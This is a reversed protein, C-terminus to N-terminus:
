NIYYIDCSTLQQLFNINKLGLADKIIPIIKDANQVDNIFIIVGKSIDKKNVIDQINQKTYDINKAVYSEDILTFLLIDDLFRSKETDMFYITPLNLESQLKQVIQKRNTYLLEPEWKFVFPTIIMVAFLICMIINVINEKTITQLLKYLYYIVIIFILSCVPVIYRLVNWPSTITAITFFIVSPIIIIKIIDKTEKSIKFIPKKRIKNYILIIVIAAIIIYLFNSFGYYNLNHVQPFISKVIEWVNEVKTMVSQGRYGFFIHNISYPFIILSTIGALLMTLTYYIAWKIRKEKIYKFMFVLYISGLFFLYYYHTLIGALATIGIGILLKVNEKELLKIHLLTTILVILTSLAYMRIYIVNSLSALTVSSMFALVAAKLNFNKENKLLKTLILYMVITIFAYIVINVTIGIWKSFHDINFGMAIRLILYYLPPHVDNKQNEYVPAYNNVEDEQVSLYDKYYEKDHWNDFFDENDQIDIKDYNALGYSYAEDMHIYYKKTGVYIFIITQIILFLILIIAIKSKKM